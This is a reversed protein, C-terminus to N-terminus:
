KAPLHHPAALLVIRTIREVRFTRTQREDIQRRPRIRQALERGLVRRWSEDFRNLRNFRNFRNFEKFGSRGAIAREAGM